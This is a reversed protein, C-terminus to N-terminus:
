INFDYIFFTMKETEDGLHLGIEKEGRRQLGFHEYFKYNCSTDTYLFFNRMNEETMYSLASEFLLRGIGCGRFNGNIAFFALEGDYSNDCRSLLQKDVSNVNEFIKMARRGDSTLYLSLISVGMKVFKSISKKHKAFNKAMIVGVTEGDIVAVRAFTQNSLCSDLFLCAMKEATKGSCFRDYNWAERIIKEIFARDDERYERLMVNEKM